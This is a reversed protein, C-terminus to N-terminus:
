EAGCVGSLLRFPNKAIGSNSYAIFLVRCFCMGVIRMEFHIGFYAGKPQKERAFQLCQPIKRPVFNGSVRARFFPSSRDWDREDEKRIEM